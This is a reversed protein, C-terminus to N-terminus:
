ISFGGTSANLNQEGNYVNPDFIGQQYDWQEPFTQTSLDTSKYVYGMQIGGRVEHGKIMKKYSGTAFVKFTNLNFGSYNDNVIILGADIEDNYFFFKRDFAVIATTIAKDIQPWQHRYNGAM